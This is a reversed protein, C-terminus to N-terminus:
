MVLSPWIYSISGIHSLSCTSRIGTPVKRHLSLVQDVFKSFIEALGQFQPDLRVITFALEGEYQDKIDRWRAHPILLDYFTAPLDPNTPKAVAVQGNKLRYVRKFAIGRPM